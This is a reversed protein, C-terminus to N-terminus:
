LLYFTKKNAEICFLGKVVYEINSMVIGIFNWMKIGDMCQDSECLATEWM